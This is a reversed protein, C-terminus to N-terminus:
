RQSRFWSWTLSLMGIKRLCWFIASLSLGFGVTGVNMGIEVLITARPLIRGILPLSRLVLPSEVAFPASLYASLLAADPVKLFGLGVGLIMLCAIAALYKRVVNRGRGLTTRPSNSDTNRSYRLASILDDLM